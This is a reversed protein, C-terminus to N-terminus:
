QKSKKNLKETLWTLFATLDMPPSRFEQPTVLDLFDRHTVGARPVPGNRVDFSGFVDIRPARGVVEVYFELKLASQSSSPAQALKRQIRDISIPLEDVDLKTNQAPPEQAAAPAAVLLLALVSAWVRHLRM